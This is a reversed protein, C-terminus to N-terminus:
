RFITRLLGIVTATIVCGGLFDTAFLQVPEPAALLGIVVVAAVGVAAAPFQRRARATRAGRAHGTRLVPVIYVFALVLLAGGLGATLFALGITTHTVHKDAADSAAWFPISCFLLLALVLIAVAKPRSVQRPGFDVPANRSTRGIM